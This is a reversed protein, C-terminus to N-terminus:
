VEGPHMFQFYGYGLAFLPFLVVGIWGLANMLGTLQAWIALVSGIAFSVFLALTIPQQTRGDEGHRASWTLIAFGVTSGGFFRALFLGAANTSVGYFQLTQAPLLLFGLGYVVGVIATLLMLTGLKM